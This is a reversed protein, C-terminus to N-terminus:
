SPRSSAREILRGRFVTKRRPTADGGIRSLLHAVVTAGIVDTPQAITTIGGSVLPSWELEDFGVFGVGAGMAIGLRDLARVVRLTTIGSGAIIAQPGTAPSRDALFAAVAADLRPEDDLLAEILQGRVGATAAAVTLFVSSREERTSVGAVPESFFALDRFGNAILHRTAQTTADANDLGVFDHASDPLFRDLLVTHVPDPPRIGRGSRRVSTAHLIIGEVSYAALTELIDRETDPNDGSNCLMMSYGEARCAEEASRMVEVSYPNTANAVVFGILRTRGRKLARALRNPRYDLRAIAAEIEARNQASVLEFRGSLFRSVAAKSVGAARAVDSITVGKVQDM